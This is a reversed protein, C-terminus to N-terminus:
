RRGTSVSPLGPLHPLRPFKLVVVPINGFLKGPADFLRVAQQDNEARLLHERNQAPDYVFDTVFRRVEALESIEDASKPPLAARQAASVRPSWPDVFVVGAVREPARHVLGLAILSGLSHAALVVPEKLDAADLLAM